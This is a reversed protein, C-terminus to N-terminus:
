HNIKIGLKNNSIESHSFNNIELQKKTIISELLEYNIKNKSICNEAGAEIMKRIYIKDDFSTLGIISLDPYKNLAIKTAQIGNMEPMEYNVFVMNANNSKMINLLEIGNSAEGIIKVGNFSFLMQRLATKFNRSKDALIIKLTKM